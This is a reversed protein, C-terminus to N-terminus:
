APNALLTLGSVDGYAKQGISIDPVFASGINAGSRILTVIIDAAEKFVSFYGHPVSDYVLAVRDHFQRWAKEM